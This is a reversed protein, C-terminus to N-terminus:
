ARVPVVHDSRLRRRHRPRPGRTARGRLGAPLVGPEVAVVDGAVLEGGSLDLQRLRTCRSVSATGWATSSATWSCRARSRRSSAASAARRSSRPRSRTSSAAAFGRASRRWPRRSRRRASGTTPVRARGLRARRRLHPDHGHPLGVRPRAALPRRHDARRRPDRRLGHPPRHLDARRPRRHVRGGGDRQGPVGSGGRGEPAGLDAARRRPARRRRGARGRRLCAAIAATAAEAARTAKRVGELQSPTKARRRDNFLDRQVDLRIGAARLRDAVEVPFNGPVIAASVDLRECARAAIEVLASRALRHRGRRARRARVGGAAPRELGDVQSM